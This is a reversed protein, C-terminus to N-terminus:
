IADKQGNRQHFMLLGKIEDVQVESVLQYGRQELFHQYEPRTALAAVGASQPDEQMVTDVAKILLEGLGRQQYRPHVAIFTLMHYNDVPMAEAILREKEIMQRTSLYGATLLMKLRWHWFRGPGFNAGPRTMCVVGELTDGDYIGFMQQGSQWFFSLEERIAARLRQAYGEKDAKFISVFVPDDQYAQFLLSAALRIDESALFVLKGTLQPQTTTTTAM